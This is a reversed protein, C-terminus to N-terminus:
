FASAPIEHVFWIWGHSGKVGDGAATKPRKLLVPAM